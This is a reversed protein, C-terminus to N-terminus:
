RPQTTPPPTDAVPARSAPVIRISEDPIGRARLGDLLAHVDARLPRDAHIVQVHDPRLRRASQLLDAFDAASVVRENVALVGRFDLTAVCERPQAARIVMTVPTEPPPIAATNACVWLEELRSPFSRTYSILSDPKDVVAIGAGSADSASTGDPLIVSGGFIWPRAVPPCGYEYERLWDYANVQRRQGDAVWEFLIDVLDGTPPDFADRSENWRPPHGPTLGILGLAMYIHMASAECRVISEHEKGPFCALFELTGARLVVRTDVLVARSAWDIRVGPQFAVPERRVRTPQSSPSGSPPDDSNAAPPMVMLLTFALLSFRGVRSAPRHQSRPSRM